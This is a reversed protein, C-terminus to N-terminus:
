EVINVLNELRTGEVGIKKYKLLTVIINLDKLLENCKEDSSIMGWSKLTKTVLFNKLCESNNKLWAM